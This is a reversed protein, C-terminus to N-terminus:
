YVTQLYCDECYVIEERNPAYTTKIDKECKMCKRDYLKRPNRLEMREKHRQDPCKRSIPLWMQKYFKFEQSILKYPKGTIECILIKDCIASDVDKIDEPIEVKQWFYNKSDNEEDRWKWWKQLVQQKTLQFYEQAVTENYGFPSLKTPFFEWWEWTSQMHKIIKQLLIEYQEKSYQKNFICYQAKKLWSCAFCDNCWICHDLYLSNKSYWSNYTFQTNYQNITSITEYCLECNDVVVHGDYCDKSKFSFILNKCNELNWSDYCEACDKCNLIHDGTSNINHNWDYYQFVQSEREKKVLVEKVKKFVKRNGLNLESIRKEYEDKKYSKNFIYYEKWRLQYCGFCNKCNKCDSLFYSDSCNHSRQSHILNYSNSCGVCELCLKSKYCNVCELCNECSDIAYSYYCNENHDSVFIMYCDKNQQSWNTYDSNENNSTFVSIKPTIQLLQEFQEFFSKNFDFEKGYDFASWKDWHWEHQDYVKYQKDQSYISIIQKWTLDCKRNYLKRENRFTFRRQMRCQSCLTPVPIQYKKWNFEPSIKDYFTLDEQTIEYKAQCQKCNKIM